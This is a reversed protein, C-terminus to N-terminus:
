NVYNKNPKLFLMKRQLDRINDELQKNRETVEILKAEVYSYYNNGKIDLSELLEKNEISLKEIEAEFQFTVNNIDKLLDENEKKCEDSEGKFISNDGNM